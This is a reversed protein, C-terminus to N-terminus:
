QTHSGANKVPWIKGENKEYTKKHFLCYRRCFLVLYKHKNYKLWVSYLTSM